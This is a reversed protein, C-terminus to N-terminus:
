GRRPHDASEVKEAGTYASFAFILFVLVQKLTRYIKIISAEQGM